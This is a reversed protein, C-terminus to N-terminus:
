RIRATGQSNAAELGMTCFSYGLSLQKFVKDGCDCLQDSNPNSDLLHIRLHGGAPIVAESLFDFCSILGSSGAQRDATPPTQTSLHPLLMTDDRGSPPPVGRLSHLGPALTGFSRGTGSCYPPLPCHLFVPTITPDSQFIPFHRILISWVQIWHSKM